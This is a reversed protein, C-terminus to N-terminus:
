QYGMFKKKKQLIIFRKWLGKEEDFVEELSVEFFESLFNMDLGSVRSVPVVWFSGKLLEQEKRMM